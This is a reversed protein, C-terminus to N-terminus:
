LQLSLSIRRASKASARMIASLRRPGQDNSCPGLHVVHSRAEARLAFIATTTPARFACQWNPPQHRERRHLQALSSSAHMVVDPRHGCCPVILHDITVPHDAAPLCLTLWVRTKADSGHVHRHVGWGDRLAACAPSTPAAAKRESM